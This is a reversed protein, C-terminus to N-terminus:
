CRDNCELVEGPRVFVDVGWNNWDCKVTNALSSFVSGSWFGCKNGCHRYQEAGGPIDYAGDGTCTMFVPWSLNNRILYRDTAGGSGEPLANAFGPRRLNLRYEGDENVFYFPKPLKKGDFAVEARLANGEQRLGVITFRGRLDSGESISPFEKLMSARLKRAFGPTDGGLAQKIRGKIERSTTRDLAQVNEDLLAQAFDNIRTNTASTLAQSTVDIADDSELEAVSADDIDGCGLAMLGAAFLFKMKGPFKV